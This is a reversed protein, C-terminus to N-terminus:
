ARPYGSIADYVGFCGVMHGEGHITNSPTSAVPEVM